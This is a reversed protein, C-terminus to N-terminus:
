RSEQQFMGIQLIMKLVRFYFCQFIILQVTSYLEFNTEHNTQQINDQIQKFNVTAAGSRRRNIDATKVISIM